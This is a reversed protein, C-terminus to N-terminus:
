FGEQPVRLDPASRFNVVAAATGRTDTHHEIQVSDQNLRMLAMFCIRHVDSILVDQGIAQDLLLVERGSGDLAADTIQRYFREEAVEIMVHERDGRPGGLLTYGSNEVLMTADASGIMTALRLDEMFTPIWIPITKGRLAHMIAEFQRLDSRGHLVWAHQQVTFARQATDRRRPLAVRNDFDVLIREYAATLDDTEDPAVSLVGFGRYVDELGGAPAPVTSGPEAMMFKVATTVIADTRRSPKPQDTMKALYAPFVRTDAVWTMTTPATLNITSGAVSAVEVLETRFVDGNFLVLVSGATISTLVLDEMPLVVSGSAVSEALIEVEHWAPLYWDGGGFSVLLNDMLRRDPGDVLVDYEFMRRPYRRVARRQEAGTPSTMVDTLWELTQTFTRNWNPEFPWVPVNPQIPM